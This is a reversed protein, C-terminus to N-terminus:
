RSIWKGTMSIPAFTKAYAKLANYEYFRNPSDKLHGFLQRQTSNFGGVHETSAQATVVTLFTVSESRDMWAFTPAEKTVNSEIWYGEALNVAPWNIDTRGSVLRKVYFNDSSSATDAVTVVSRLPSSTIVTPVTTIPRLKDLLRAVRRRDAQTITPTRPVIVFERRSDTWGIDSMTIPLDSLTNELYKYREVVTCEVGIAAEAALEMGRPTPGEIIARMWILCRARYQSDKIKVDRWQEQTLAENRPDVSYLEASLRPLALPNGYLRDLDNFHTSELMQQLRPYLLERKLGGAGADGCLAVLFRFLHSDNTVNYAPETFRGLKNRLTEPARIPEPMAVQPTIVITGTARIESVTTM